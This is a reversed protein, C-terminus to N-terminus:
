KQVRAMQTQNSITLADIASWGNTVRSSIKGKPLGLTREWESYTLTKGSFSIRINNSKNSQQVDNTVWRCNEPSYNRNSDIRDITHFSSPRKGIDEFFNSFSDVWRECVKIGKDYYYKGHRKDTKECREKMHAWVRYEPTRSMGHVYSVKAASEKQFCGCSSVNGSQLNGGQVVKEGGCDCVCKWYSQPGRFGDLSKVTLRGYKKGVRDVFRNGRKM